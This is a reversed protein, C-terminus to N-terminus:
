LEEAVEEEAAQGGGHQRAQLLKLKERIRRRDLSTPIFGPFLAGTAPNVGFVAHALLATDDTGHTKAADQLRQVEEASWTYKKKRRGSKHHEGPRVVLVSALASEYPDDAPRAAPDSARVGRELAHEVGGDAEHARGAAMPPEIGASAPSVVEARREAYPSPRLAMAEHAVLGHILATHAFVEREHGSPIQATPRPPFGATAAQLERLKALAVLNAQLREMYVVVERLRTQQMNELIAAELLQNERLLTDVMNLSVPLPAGGGGARGLSDLGSSESM